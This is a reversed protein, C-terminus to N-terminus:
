DKALKRLVPILALPIVVALLGAVLPVLGSALASYVDQNMSMAVVVPIYMASVFQIGGEGFLEAMRNVVVVHMDDRQRHHLFFDPPRLAAFIRRQDPRDFLDDM